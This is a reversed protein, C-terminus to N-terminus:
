ADFGFQDGLVFMYFKTLPSDAGKSDSSLWLLPRYVIDCPTNMSFRVGMVDPNSIYKAQGVLGVEIKSRGNLYSLGYFSFIYVLCLIASTLLIRSRSKM